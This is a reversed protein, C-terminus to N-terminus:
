NLFLRYQVDMNFIIRRIDCHRKVIDDSESGFVFGDPLRASVAKKNKLPCHGARNLGAVLLFANIFNEEKPNFCSIMRAM